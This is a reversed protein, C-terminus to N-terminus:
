GPTQELIMDLIAFDGQLEDSLRSERRELSQRYEVLSVLLDHEAEELSPGIGYEDVVAYSVIVGTDQYTVEVGIEKALYWDSQGALTGQAITRFLTNSSHVYDLRRGFEPEAVTEERTVGLAVISITTM